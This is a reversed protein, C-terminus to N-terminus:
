LLSRGLQGSVGLRYRAHGIARVAAQQRGAALIARDAEPSSGCSFDQRHLSKIRLDLSEAERGVAAVEEGAVAVGGAVLQFDAPQQLSPAADPRFMLLLGSCAGSM